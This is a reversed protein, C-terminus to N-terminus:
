TIPDCFFIQMMLLFVTARTMPPLQHQFSLGALLSLRDYYVCMCGRMIQIMVASNSYDKLM